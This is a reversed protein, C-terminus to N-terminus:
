SPQKGDAAIPLEITFTSGRGVESRVLGRGGHSEVIHKVISLGIGVGQTERRLESGSRYFREFIKEHEAPAIGEGHDEVWLLVAARVANGNGPARSELNTGSGPPAGPRHELGITVTGGNPSHKIANDILNILAQQIGKGDLVIQSNLNSVQSDAIDLKLLVQREAAYTQMLQVTQQALAVLDTPEFEYQKRGQEIRSFDLVNEILSSLRGCEQVIFRFYEQQKPSDSVKGRELSEAMLRVSAIPARLEHSVSSVFNSKLENLRLQRHFARYASFFGVGAALAAGGVLAALWLSRVHERAFLADPSTLYISVKLRGAAGPKSASALMNTSLEQSYEKKLGGGGKSMYEAYGWIRLDPAPWTLRKGAVELGVGFYEPIQKTEDVARTLRLGVESESRCVFWQSTSSGNLRMALWNRDETELDPFLGPRSEVVSFLIPAGNTFVSRRGVPTTFWFLEKMPADIPGVNATSGVHNGMAKPSQTASFLERSWEQDDWLRQWKAVAEHAQLTAAYVSLRRLIESSLLTPRYVANSGLENIATIQETASAAANLELLKIRALPELPLGSEGAAGPYKEVVARFAGAAAQPDGVGALLLGLSYLAAAAFDAPPNSDAFERYAQAATAPNGADMEVKQARFWLRSQDTNLEAPDLIAPAPTPTYAPPFLLEGNSDTEFAFQAENPQDNTGILETWLKPVLDDAIAQARQVAEHRALVKDSRLSLFGLAALVGVPLLILLGQRFFTPNPKTGSVAM